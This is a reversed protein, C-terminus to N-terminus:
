QNNKNKLMYQIEDLKRSFVRMLIGDYEYMARSEIIFNIDRDDVDFVKLGIFYKKLRDFKEGCYYTIYEDNNEYPDTTSKSKEIVCKEKFEPIINTDKKSQSYCSSFM